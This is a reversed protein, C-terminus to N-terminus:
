AEVGALFAIVGSSWAHCFSHRYGVYCYKGYDGHLDRVGPAPLEDIRGSGALWALDFDEFFTTAGRGLMGGYYRRMVSLAEERGFYHAYATLIYYSMFTSMGEAGRRRLLAVEDPLLEGKAMFKLAAVQMMETAHIEIRDLRAALEEADTADEGLARLMEGTRKAGFLYIARRGDPEDPKGSTPWDVLTREKATLTGDEAVAACLHSLVGRVYPLLPRVFDAGGALRVYDALCILFWCSYTDIGCMWENAPTSDVLFRISNEFVETRGYLTTLALMEPHMDGIWVLRDRKIGDVVYEGSACLDITRKAARFIAADTENGGAYEYRCPLSLIQGEGTVARLEIKAADDLFDIRAFRFGGQGWVGSTLAQLPFVFDRPSHDNGANKEGLEACCEGASEGLRLRVPVVSKKEGDVLRTVFRAGGCLERGFDLLLSARGRIRTFPVKPEGWYVPIVRPHPLLLNEAAAVEGECLLIRTPLLYETAM